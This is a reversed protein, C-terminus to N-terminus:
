MEVSWKWRDLARGHKMESQSRLSINVVGGVIYTKLADVGAQHKGGGVSHFVYLATFSCSFVSISFLFCFFGVELQRGRKGFCVYM